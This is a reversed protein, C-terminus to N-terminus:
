TQGYWVKEVAEWYKKADEMIHGAHASKEFPVRTVGCGLGEATEAHEEIDKWFVM